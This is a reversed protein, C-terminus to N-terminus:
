TNEKYQHKAYMINCYMSWIIWKEASKEKGNEMSKNMGPHFADVFIPNGLPCVVRTQVPNMRGTKRRLFEVPFQDSHGM